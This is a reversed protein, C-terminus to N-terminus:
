QRGYHIIISSLSPWIINPSRRPRFIGSMQKVPSSFGRFFRVWPVQGSRPDFGPQTVPACAVAQGVHGTNGRDVLYLSPEIKMVVIWKVNM